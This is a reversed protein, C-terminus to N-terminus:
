PLKDYGDGLGKLSLPFGIGEEPTEFIIFTATKASKLTREDHPVTLEIPNHKRLFSVDAEYGITGLEGHTCAGAREIAAGLEAEITAPRDCDSPATKASGSDHCELVRMAGVVVNGSPAPAGAEAVTSSAAATAEADVGADAIAVSEDDSKAPAHARHWVFLPLAVLLAGGAFAGITPLKARVDERDLLSM